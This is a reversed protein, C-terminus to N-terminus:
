GGAAERPAAVGRQWDPTFADTIARTGDAPVPSCCAPCPMGIGGHEARGEVTGHMGEWPFEPHDECVYGGDLCSLCRPPTM